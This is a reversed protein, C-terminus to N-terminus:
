QAQLLLGLPKLPGVPLFEFDLFGASALPMAEITAKAEEVSAVSMLFVVGPKDETFYFQEIKGELYLKLTHPVEKPMIHKRDEDTIPKNARGIAFVKM